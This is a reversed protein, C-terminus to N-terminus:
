WNFKNIIWLIGLTLSLGILGDIIGAKWEAFIITKTATDVGNWFAMYMMFCHWLMGIFLFAAVTISAVVVIAKPILKRKEPDMTWKRAKLM